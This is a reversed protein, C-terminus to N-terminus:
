LFNMKRCAKLGFTLCNLSGIAGMGSAPITVAKGQRVLGSFKLQVGALSFKLHSSDHRYKENDILESDPPAGGVDSPRAIVAGPLDAGLASLLFFERVQKVGARVALYDRMAGEPLLNSFFPPLKTQTPRTAPIVNGFSDKMSLSLVPAARDDLYSDTFAFVTHDGPL